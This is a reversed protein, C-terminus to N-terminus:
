NCFWELINYNFLGFQRKKLQKAQERKSGKKIGVHVGGGLFEITKEVPAFIMQQIFEEWVIHM